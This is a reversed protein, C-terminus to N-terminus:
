PTSGRVWVKNLLYGTGPGGVVGAKSGDPMDITGDIVGPPLAAVQAREVESPTSLAKTPTPAHYSTRTAKPSPEHSTSSTSTSPEAAPGAEAHAATGREGGM